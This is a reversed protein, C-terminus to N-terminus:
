GLTKRFRAVAAGFVGAAMVALIALPLLIDRVGAGKLFVERVLELFWRVPNFLTLHQFFAPMTMIPYMFGSLIIAPLLLLFMTMFAEQQTRSITSIFLGLGLATLIYLGAALFLALISGRLPIHFWLVALTVVLLLDIFTIIAVPITKGLILEGPTVPSVMLQELTGLERERVVSLATLLLAMLLLLLGVVAPVNYVRSLLSPNFWARTRLDVGRDLSLGTARAQRLGFQQIIRSAYGQAVTATNSNSGDLILQVRAGRGAALDSAFGPPIDVGMLIDGHDLARGLDASRDSRLVIRFYDGATLADALARSQQTQDHDVIGTPVHNVDTTVAYGFMLLQIIPAGFMLRKTKPDRLLQRAEKRVLALIRTRDM